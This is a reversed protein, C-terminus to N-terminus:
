VNKLEKVLEELVKKADGFIMMNNDAEFLPNKIGAFGPSLSRKIIFSQRVQDVDLIPMGYIPSDKENRAVPNVVDNAGVVIAVDTNKFDSNIDDMEVLQEYPVSAEALLVNMHGPMRGAVPHIAYKVSAGRSELLDALEKVTHQAQAVALGYGPVFIVSQAAELVMAAEEAGCERVRTYGTDKSGGGGSSASDGGFGGFLVNALSRNMAKCMIQTLILGSAGVLSGSIILLNNHLVFGTMAAALGSYSNLLSIVVPMDAGGIPIVLLVGLVFAVGTLLLISTNVTAIGDAHAFWVTLGIAALVLGINIAHRAPILIPNGSIKGSLKGFAVMSGTLTLAGILVSLAISIVTMDGMADEDALGPFEDWMGEVREEISADSIGFDRMAQTASAELTAPWQFVFSLAVLASAIGGLGNFLGVLEPMGTMEVRKALIFGVSGGVILSVPIWFWHIDGHAWLTTLIALGMGAAALRNGGAATRIGALRKVGFIFLISAILYLLTLWTENMDHGVETVAALPLRPLM